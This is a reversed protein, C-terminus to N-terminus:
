AHGTGVGRAGTTVADRATGVAAGRKEPSQTSSTATIVLHIGSTVPHRRKILSAAAMVGAEVVVVAAVFWLGAGAAKVEVVGM